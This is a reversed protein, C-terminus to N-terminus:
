QTCEAATPDTRGAEETTVGTQLVIETGGRMDRALQNAMPVLDGAVFQLYQRTLDNNVLILTGGQGAAFGEGNFALVNGEIRTEAGPQQNSIWLAASKNSLVSNATVRGAPADRMEIGKQTNGIVLNGEVRACASHQVTIGGGKRNWVVNGSIMVDPSDQRVLIGAREGGLIVNAAIVGAASGQELRIANTPQVGNFLNGSITVGRTGQVVLAPGRSDRIRNDTFRAGTEGQVVVSLVDEFLNSEIIAPQDTPRLLNRQVAIGAFKTTAGFGLGTLESRRLILVGRDATTLFPRFRRIRENVDGLSRIAAGEATLSGFNMVFAGDPRSLLIEDGRALRLAAGPWIVLPVKLTLSRGSVQGALGTQRLMAVLDALDAEGSKVVLANRQPDSQADLVAFNDEDDHTMSLMTLALRVDMRGGEAAPAKAAPVRLPLALADRRPQPATLVPGLVPGYGPKQSAEAALDPLKADSILVAASRGRAAPDADAQALSGLRVQLDLSIQDPPLASARLPCLVTLCVCALAAALGRIRPRMVRPPAARTADTM